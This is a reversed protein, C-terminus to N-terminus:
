IPLGTCTDVLYKEDSNRIVTGLNKLAVKAPEDLDIMKLFIM